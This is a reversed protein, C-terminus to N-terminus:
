PRGIIRAPTNDIVNISTFGVIIEVIQAPTRMLLIRCIGSYAVASGITDPSPIFRPHSNLLM